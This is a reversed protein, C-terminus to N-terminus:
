NERVHSLSLINAIGEPHYWATGFAKLKGTMNTTAIGANCYITMLEKGKQIDSLLNGNCFADM